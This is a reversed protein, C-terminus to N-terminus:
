IEREQATWDRDSPRADPWPDTEDEETEMMSHLRGAFAGWYEPNGFVEAIAQPEPDGAKTKTQAKVSDPDIVKAKRNMRPFNPHATATPMWQLYLNRVYENELIKHGEVVPVGVGRNNLYTRTFRWGYNPAGKSDFMAGVSERFAQLMDFSEVLKPYFTTMVHAMIAKLQGFYVPDLFAEDMPRGRVRPDNRALLESYDKTVADRYEEFTCDKM